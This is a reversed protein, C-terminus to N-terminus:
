SRRPEASESEIVEVALARWGRDTPVPVFRVRQGPRLEVRGAIDDLHVFFDPQIFGYGGRWSRVRGEVKGDRTM